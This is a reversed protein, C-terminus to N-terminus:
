GTWKYLIIMVGTAQTHDPTVYPCGVFVKEPVFGMIKAPKPVPVFGQGGLSSGMARVIFEVNTVNSFLPDNCGIRHDLINYAGDIMLQYILTNRVKDVVSVPVGVLGPFNKWAYYVSSYNTDFPTLKPDPNIRRGIRLMQFSKAWDAQGQSIVYYGKQRYIAEEIDPSPMNYAPMVILTDNNKFFYFIEYALIYTENPKAGLQRLLASAEGDTGTFIRALLMIQTSNLTAGDAVTRRGTNVTIWYGYDWWAVILADKPTSENIYQLADKWANNIPVVVSNNIKFPSLGSTEIQPAHFKAMTLSDSFQLLAGSVVIIVLTGAIIVPLPDLSSSSKKLSLKGLSGGESTFAFKVIDGVFIGAAISSITASMQTLYSLNMNGYLLLIVTLYITATISNQKKKTMILYLEYFVGIVAVILAIGYQNVIYRISAGQNEQVSTLLPSLKNVGLAALIRGGVPLYGSFIAVGGALIVAALIVLYHEITYGKGYLWYAIYFLIISLTVIAGVGKVFYFLGVKPYLSAIVAYTIYTAFLSNKKWEEIQIRILPTVIIILAFLATVFHIGGWIWGITGGFFGALVGYTLSKKKDKSEFMMYTFLLFLLLNPIAIGTKEVFGVITRTIAGPLMAFFMASVLGGLMSNTVRYVLYFGIIVALTGAFVPMLAIWGKLSLGFVAAIPYTAAAFWSVGIYETSLFNRGYPWWFETVHELGKFAFLGHQHFYKAIWYAIWPDNADLELGYRTAPLFRVYFALVTIATLTLITLIKRYGVIFDLIKISINGMEHSGKSKKKKPKSKRDRSKAM